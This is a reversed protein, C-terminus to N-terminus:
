GVGAVDPYRSGGRATTDTAAFPNVGRSPNHPNRGMRYPWVPCDIIACRRVEAANEACALCQRRLDKYRRLGDVLPVDGLASVIRTTRRPGHGAATLVDVPLAMPDRGVRRGDAIETLHDLHGVNEPAYGHPTM